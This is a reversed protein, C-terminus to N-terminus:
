QREAEGSIVAGPVGSILVLQMGKGKDTIVFQFTDTRGDPGTTADKVLFAIKGMGTNQDFEVTRFTFTGGPVVGVPTVLTRSGQGTGDNNMTLQGVLAVPTAVMGGNGDPQIVTGTLRVAYTGGRSALAQINFNTNNDDQGDIPEQRNSALTTNATLVLVFLALLTLFSFSAKKM